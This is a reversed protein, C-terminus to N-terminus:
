LVKDKQAKHLNGYAWTKNKVNDRTGKWGGGDPRLWLALVLGWLHMWLQAQSALPTAWPAATRVLVSVCVRQFLFAQPQIGSLLLAISSLSREVCVQLTTVAPIPMEKKALTVQEGNTFRCTWSIVSECDCFFDCRVGSRALDPVLLCLHKISKQETVLIWQKIYRPNQWLCSWTLVLYVRHKVQSLCHLSCRSM